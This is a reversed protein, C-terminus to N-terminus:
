SKTNLTSSTAHPGPGPESFDKHSSIPAALILTQSTPFDIYLGPIGASSRSDQDRGAASAARPKPSLVSCQMRHGRMKASPIGFM